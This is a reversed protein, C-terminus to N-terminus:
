PQSYLFILQILTFIQGKQIAMEKLIIIGLDQM